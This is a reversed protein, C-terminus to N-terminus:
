HVRQVTNKNLFLFIVFTEKEEHICTPQMISREKLTAHDEITQQTQPYLQQYDISFYRTFPNSNIAKIQIASLLIVSIKGIIRYIILTNDQM